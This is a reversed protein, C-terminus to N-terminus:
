LSSDASPIFPTGAFNDLNCFKNKCTAMTKDCGAYIIFTDEITPTYQLPTSLTILGNSHIKVSKRINFNAGNTFLVVGNQYYGEARKLNCIIQKKTSGKLIIAAESYKTRDVNCGAAYLAYHCSSQYIDTPFNINLLETPSKVNLKVYYGSVEDVDINGVFLKELILPDKEWGENYFALDLQIDAGDFTGNRFAEVLPVGGVKDTAGPYMEITVDDVSLGTQWSIESRSIGANRCSYLNGGYKIDFDASTYRLIIGNTLTFTYLDSIKMVKSDESALFKILEKSAQKM